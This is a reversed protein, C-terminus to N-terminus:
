TDPDASGPVVRTPAVRRRTKPPSPQSQINESYQEVPLNASAPRMSAAESMDLIQDQGQFTLIIKGRMIEQITAGEIVDGEYYLDQQRDRKTLIIARGRGAPATVTGLLVLNLTTPVLEKPPEIEVTTEAQEEEIYSKFLNREVIVDYNQHKEIVLTGPKRTESSAAVRYKKAPPRFLYREVMGYLIEVSGVTLLTAILFPLVRSIHKLM